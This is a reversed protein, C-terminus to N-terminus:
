GGLLRRFFGPQQETEKEVTAGFVVPIRGVLTGRILVPAVGLEAGKVAPAYVFGPGPLLVSAKEGPAALMSFDEAALIPVQRKQGEWVELTGVREGAHLLTRTKLRGFGKELLIAHDSWDSPADITVAVLRRGQRLASSVLIRGAAKTYGTKIGDAGPFRWLLKNHNQLVRGGAKATKAGVTRAFIPNKMAATGLIALDLATSRHDKGDLGHPNEFHSNKMGLERAKRNMLEAFAPVSGATHIALAAAADNGSRLLMGYLLEQVTLVEGEKLYLSSGEIGVAERPIRVPELVNCRECVLLGTMIKTTSAILSKEEARRSFLIEKGVTDMVVARRASIAGAPVPIFLVAALM